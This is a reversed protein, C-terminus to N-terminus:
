TQNCASTTIPSNAKDVRHIITDDLSLVGQEVLQVVAVAIYLKSVSAMKFISDELMVGGPVREQRGAQRSESSGDAALITLTFGDAGRNVGDQLAEQLNSAGVAPPTPATSAAGGGSGGGGGGGCAVLLLPLLLVTLWTFTTSRTSM